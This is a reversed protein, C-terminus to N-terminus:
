GASGEALDAVCLKTLPTLALHIPLPSSSLICRLDNSHCCRVAVFYVLPSPRTRRVFWCHPTTDHSARVLMNADNMRNDNAGLHLQQTEGQESAGQPLLLFADTGGTM